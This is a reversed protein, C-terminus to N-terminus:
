GRKRYYSKVCELREALSKTFGSPMHQVILLAAPINAPMYPVIEQLARPGGTSAGIAILTKLEHSGAGKYEIPDVPKDM